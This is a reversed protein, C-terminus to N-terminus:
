KSEGTACMQLAAAQRRKKIISAFQGTMNGFSDPVSIKDYKLSFIRKRFAPEAVREFWAASCWPYNSAVRAVRHHVANHHVYNLRAYYSRPFTLHTEWYQFWLKRGPTSDERNVVAATSTHLHSIM